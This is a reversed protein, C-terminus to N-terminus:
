DTQSRSPPADDRETADALRAPFRGTDEGLGAPADAVTIPIGLITALDQADIRHGETLLVGDADYLARWDEGVVLTLRDLRDPLRRPM